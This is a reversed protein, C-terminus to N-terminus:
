SCGMFGGIFGRVINNVFRLYENYIKRHNEIKSLPPEAGLDVYQKIQCMLTAYIATSL